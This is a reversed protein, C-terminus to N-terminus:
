TGIKETMRSITDMIYQIGSKLAPSFVALIILMAIIALVIYFLTERAIAKSLVSKEGM